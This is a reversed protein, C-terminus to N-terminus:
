PEAPLDPEAAEEKIEEEVRKPPLVGKTMVGILLALMLYSTLCQVMVLFKAWGAAPAIDGFGLTTMVVVSFYLFDFLTNQNGNYTGAGQSVSLTLHLITFAAILTAYVAVLYIVDTWTAYVEPSLIRAVRRFWVTVYLGTLILTIASLSFYGTSATERFATATGGAVFAVLVAMWLDARKEFPSTRRSTLSAVWHLLLTLLAIVLGDILTVVGTIVPDTEGETGFRMKLADYLLLGAFVAGIYHTCFILRFRAWGSRHERADGKM